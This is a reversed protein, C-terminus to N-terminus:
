AHLLGTRLTLVEFEPRAGGQLWGVWISLERRRHALASAVVFADIQGLGGAIQCEWAMGTQM